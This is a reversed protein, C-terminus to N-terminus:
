RYTANKLLIDVIVENGQIYAAELALKTEVYPGRIITKAGESFNKYVCYELLSLTNFTPPGANFTHLKSLGSNLARRLYAVNHTAIGTIALGELYSPRSM